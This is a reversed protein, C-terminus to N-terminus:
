NLANFTKRIGWHRLSSLGSTHTETVLGEFQKAGVVVLKEILRDTRIWVRFLVKQRSLRFLSRHRLFQQFQITYGLAATKEPAQHKNIIIDIISTITEDNEQLRLAERLDEWDFSPLPIGEMCDDDIAADDVCEVLGEDLDEDNLGFAALTVADVSDVRDRWGKASQAMVVHALRVSKSAAM